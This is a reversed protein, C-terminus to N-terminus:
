PRRRGSTGRRGAEGAAHLQHAMSVLFIADGSMLLQREQPRERRFRRLPHEDGRVLPVLQGLRRRQVRRRGEVVISRPACCLRRAHRPAGAPESQRSKPPTSLLALPNREPVQSEQRGQTLPVPDPANCQRAAGRM